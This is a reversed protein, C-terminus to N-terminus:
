ANADPSGAPHQLVWSPAIQPLVATFLTLYLIWLYGRFFYVISVMQQPPSLILYVQAPIAASTPAPTPTASEPTKLRANEQSVQTMKKQLEKFQELRATTKPRYYYDLGIEGIAVVKKSKALEKYKQKDFEEGLPAFNGEDEDTRLKM